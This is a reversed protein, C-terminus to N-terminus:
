FDLPRQFDEGARGPGERMQTLRGKNGVLRLRRLLLNIVMDIRSPFINELILGLEILPETLRTLFAWSNLAQFFRLTM